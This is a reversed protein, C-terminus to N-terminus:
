MINEVRECGCVWRRQRGSKEENWGGGGVVWVM